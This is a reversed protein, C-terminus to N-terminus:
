ASLCWCYACSHHGWNEPAMSLLVHAFLQFLSLSSALLGVAILGFTGIDTYQIFLLLHWDFVSLYSALFAMSLGIGVVVTMASILVFNDQAAKLFEAATVVTKAEPQVQEPAADGITDSM